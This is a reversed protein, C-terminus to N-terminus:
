EEILGIAIHNTDHSWYMTDKDFVGHNYGDSIVIQDDDCYEISEYLNEISKILEKLEQFSYDNSKFLEKFEVEYLYEINPYIEPDYEKYNGGYDEAKNQMANYAINGTRYWLNWGDKKKFFQISLGHEDAM